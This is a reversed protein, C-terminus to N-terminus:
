TARQHKLQRNINSSFTGPTDPAQDLRAVRGSSGFLGICCKAVPTASEGIIIKYVFHAGLPCFNVIHVKLIFHLAPTPLRKSM